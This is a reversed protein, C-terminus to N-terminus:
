SVMERVSFGGYEKTVKISPEFKIFEQKNSLWECDKQSKFDFGNPLDSDLVFACGSGKKRKKDTIWTKTLFHVKGYKEIIMNQTAHIDSNTLTGMPLKTSLVDKSIGLGKIVKKTYPKEYKRADIEWPANDYSIYMTDGKWTGYLTGFMGNKVDRLTHWGKVDQVAHRLEHSLVELLDEITAGYMNRFNLAILNDKSRYWGAHKANKGWNCERQFTLDTTLNLNNCLWKHAKIITDVALQEQQNRIVIGKAM